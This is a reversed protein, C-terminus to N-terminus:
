TGFDPSATEIEADSLDGSSSFPLGSCYEQRSFGMSLSAQCSTMSAVSDCTTPCSQACMCVLVMTFM